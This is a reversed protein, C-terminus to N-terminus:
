RVGIQWKSLKHEPKVFNNIFSVKEYQMAYYYGSAFSVFPLFSLSDHFGSLLAQKALTFLTSGAQKRTPKFECDTYNHLVDKDTPLYLSEIVDNLDIKGTTQAKRVLAKYAPKDHHEGHCNEDIDQMLLDPAQIANKM